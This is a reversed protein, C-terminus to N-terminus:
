PGTIVAGGPTFDGGEAVPVATVTVVMPLVVVPGVDPSVSTGTYTMNCTGVSFAICTWTLMDSALAITAVAPNDSAVVGDSPPPGPESFVMPAVAKQGVELALVSM